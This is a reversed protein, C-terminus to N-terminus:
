RLEAVDNSNPKRLWQDPTRIGGPAGNKMKTKLPRAVPPPICKARHASRHCIQALDTRIACTAIWPKSYPRAEPMDTQRETWSELHM